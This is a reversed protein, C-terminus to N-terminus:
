LLVKAGAHIAVTCIRDLTLTGVLSAEDIIVLQGARMSPHGQRNDHLWKATNETAIGLDDALERAAVASPALGIVSGRGHEHEWALRLAHMATTKGAGAPGILVDLKRSSTAISHLAHRQDEGLVIGHNRRAREAHELTAGGVVPGATSQSAALLREEADLLTISSYRESNRPRFVSTGDARRFQPRSQLSPRRSGFPANSRPM